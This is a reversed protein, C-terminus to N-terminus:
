ASCWSATSSAWFLLAFLICQVVMLHYLFATYAALIIVSAGDSWSALLGALTADHV